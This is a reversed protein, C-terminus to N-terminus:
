QQPPATPDVAAPQQPAAQPTASQQIPDPSAPPLGEQAPLPGEQVQEPQAPPLGQVGSGQPLQEQPPTGYMQEATMQNQDGFIMQDLSQEPVPQVVPAAPIEEKGKKVFVVLFIIVGAIILLMVFIILVIWILSMGDSDSEQDVIGIDDGVQPAHSGVGGSDWSRIITYQGDNHKVQTRIAATVYLQFDPRVGLEDLEAITLIVEVGDGTDLKRISPAKEHLPYYLVSVQRLDFEMRNYRYNSMPVPFEYTPIDLVTPSIRDEDFDPTLFYINLIPEQEKEESFIFEMKDGFLIRIKYIRDTSGRQGSVSLIDISYPGSFEMKMEKQSRTLVLPDSANDTYSMDIDKGVFIEGLIRTKEVEINRVVEDYYEGDSVNLRIRYNGEEEILASFTPGEGFPEGNKYWSYTLNYGHMMDPDSSRSANFEIPWTTNYIFTEIPNDLVARPPDNVNLIHLTFNSFVVHDTTPYDPRPAVDKAFRDDVWVSVPYDGVMKNETMFELVGDDDDFDYEDQFELQVGSREYIIDTINTGYVLRQDTDPDVDFAEVVIHVLSDEDFFYEKDTEFVPTDNVPMVYVWFQKEFYLGNQDTCRIDFQGWTNNNGGKIRKAKTNLYPSSWDPAPTFSINSGDSEITVDIMQAASGNKFVSFILTDFPDKIDGIMENPQGHDENVGYFSTDEPIIISFFDGGSELLSPRDNVNMVKIWIEAESSGSANYAVITIKFYEKDYIISNFDEGNDTCMISTRGFVDSGPWADMGIEIPTNQRSYPNPYMIKFATDEWEWNPDYFLDLDGLNTMNLINEKTPFNEYFTFRLTDDSVASRNVIPGDARTPEARVQDDSNDANGFLLMGSTLLMLVIFMKVARSWFIGPDTPM